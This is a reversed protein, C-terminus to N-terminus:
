LVSLAELQAVTNVTHWEKPYTNSYRLLGQEILQQWVDNFDEVSKVRENIAFPNIVQIGSCYIDSVQSRSLQAVINDKGFIFDGAIDKAPTVPVVMCAPNGLTTYNNYIFTLDLEVINDCTLVLVPENIYSFLTNFIWWANGHGNTNLIMSSGEEILYKALDSGKYGVTISLNPIVNVLQRITHAILPSENMKVMAKSTHQTLPMMRMGRGAAMILAYAIM